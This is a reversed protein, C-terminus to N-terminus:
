LLCIQKLRRLVRSRSRFRRHLSPSFISSPAKSRWRLSNLPRKRLVQSQRGCCRAQARQADGLLRRSPARTRPFDAHLSTVRRTWHSVLRFHRLCEGGKGENEQREMSHPSQFGSNYPFNKFLWKKPKLYLTWALCCLVNYLTIKAQRTQALFHLDTM